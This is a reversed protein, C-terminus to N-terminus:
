SEARPLQNTRPIYSQHAFRGVRLKMRPRCETKEFARRQRLLQSARALFFFHARHSHEIAVSHIARRTKIQSRLLNRNLRVNARFHRRRFAPPIRQQHRRALTILIQAPQNRPHFQARSFTFSINRRLFNSFLRASEDAQRSALLPRERMRQRVSANRASHLAHLPKAFQKPSLVNVHFQLPMKAAIFFRAIMSGNFDRPLQLQRQQRRIANTIRLRPLAFDQIHECTNAIMAIEGRSPPKQRAIGLAM